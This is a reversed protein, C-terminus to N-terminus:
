HIVSPPTGSQDSESRIQQWAKEVIVMSAGDINCYANQNIGCFAKRVSSNSSFYRARIRSGAGFHFLALDSQSAHLFEQRESATLSAVFQRVANRVDETDAARADVAGTTSKACWSIDPPGVRRAVIVDPGYGPAAVGAGWSSGTGRLVEGDPKLVAEYGADISRFLEFTLKNGKFEWASVGRQKGFAFTEAKEYQFGSFCARLAEGPAGFHSPDIDDVDKKSLSADFLVVMGLSAAPQVDGFACDTKCVLVEYSGVMRSASHADIVSVSLFAAFLAAVHRSVM